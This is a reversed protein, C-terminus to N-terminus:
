KKVQLLRLKTPKQCHLTKIEGDQYVDKSVCALAHLLFSFALTVSSGPDEGSAGGQRSHLAARARAGRPCICHSTLATIDMQPAWDQTCDRCTGPPQETVRPSRHNLAEAAAGRTYCACLPCSPCKDAPHTATATGQGQQWETGM